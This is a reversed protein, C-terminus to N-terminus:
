LQTKPQLVLNAEALAGSPADLLFGGSQRGWLKAYIGRAEMLEAHTGDERIEGNELVLLRDLHMITSLRHAIAIVTKGHMAQEMAQQIVAESESDL